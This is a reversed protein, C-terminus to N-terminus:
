EYCVHIPSIYDWSDAFWELMVVIGGDMGSQAGCEMAAYRLEERTCIEEELWVFTVM